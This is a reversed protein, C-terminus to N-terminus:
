SFPPHFRSAGPYGGALELFVSMFNDKAIGNGTPYIKLRWTLGNSYLPESYVVDFEHSFQSALLEFKAEEFPPVVESPFDCSVPQGLSLPVSRDEIDSLVRTIEPVKKILSTRPVVSVDLQLKLEQLLSSLLRLKKLNDNKQTLLTLLKAKMLLKLRLDIEEMRATLEAVRGDRSEQVRKINEEVAVDLNNLEAIREALRGIGTRIIAANSEYVESLRKLEHSKHLSGFMACDPCISERCTTCYYHLPSNHERCIESEQERRLSNM